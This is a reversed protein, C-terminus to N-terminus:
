QGSLSKMTQVKRPLEREGWADEWELMKKFGVGYVPDAHEALSRAEAYAGTKELIKYEVWRAFGERVVLDQDSPCAEVQWAHTLEHAATAITKDRDMEKMVYIEHGSGKYRYLGVQAGRYAGAYLEDLKTGTVLFGQVPLKYSIGFYAALLRRTEAMVADFDSQTSIVRPSEAAHLARPLFWLASFLALFVLAGALRVKM